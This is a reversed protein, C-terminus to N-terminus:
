APFGQNRSDAIFGFVLCSQLYDLKYSNMMVPAQRSSLNRLAQSTQGDVTGGECHKILMSVSQKM